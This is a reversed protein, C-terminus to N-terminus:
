VLAEGQYAAPPRSLAEWPAGWTGLSDGLVGTRSVLRLPSWALGIVASCAVAVFTVVAASTVIASATARSRRFRRLFSM